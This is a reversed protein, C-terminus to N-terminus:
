GALTVSAPRAPTVPNNNWKEGPYTRLGVLPVGSPKFITSYPTHEYDFCEVTISFQKAKIEERRDGPVTFLIRGLKADGRELRHTLVQPTLLNDNTLILETDAVLVRYGLQHIYFGTMQEDTGDLHYKAQWSIAVTPEGSNMICASLVFVTLDREADYVWIASEINLSLKPKRDNLTHTLDEARDFEQSWIRYCTVIAASVALGALLGRGATNSVFFAAITFPVTLPGSMRALWDKGISVLFKGLKM